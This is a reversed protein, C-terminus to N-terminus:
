KSLSAVAILPTDKRVTIGPRERMDLNGGQPEPLKWNFKQVLTALVLESTAVAFAAGPCVRRGAGFPLFEFNLGKYDISSNLFREPKFKEPEDWSVLDRGIAWANIMVVTGAVVDYGKIKVDKSAVRPVLLPVPPHYRLTEKMVAKLYHMRELEYERINSNDEVIERVEKQLNQMITPHRFLETMAWELLISTTDTGAAFVDLLLGKISDRDDISVEDRGDSYIGLLIDLLNDGDKGKLFGEKNGLRERMIGDLFEDIEQAVRDVKKDFGSVRDIWSLWPVFEGVRVAGIVEGLEGVVALFKKGNESESFKRGFAARCIGDNTFECFMKSLNVPGSCELINKVLLATEEERISRFSQVRRSNLLQLVVTSKARRWYEGYPAFVVDRGDYSLKRTVKTLPRSAFILDHTRTIERAADASSAVLVPVSGFHLLMMPGHKRALLGLNQHPLYGVQHLNGIVPLKPPSPPPNKNGNSEPFLKKLIWLLFLSILSPFVFPQIQIQTEDM